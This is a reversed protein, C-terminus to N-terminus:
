NEDYLDLWGKKKNELIKNKAYDVHETKKSGRKM